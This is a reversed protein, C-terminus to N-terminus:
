GGQPSPALDGPLRLTFVTGGEPPNDFRIDGGYMWILKRVTNLGLGTGTNPKTSFFPEFIRARIAAPIGAGNDSVRLECAPTGDALQSSQASCVIRGPPLSAPQGTPSRRERLADRANLVLNRLISDLHEARCRLQCSAPLEDIVLDIGDRRLEDRLEARISVLVDRVRLPPLPELGDPSQKGIQAYDMLLRTLGLTRGLAQDVHLLVEHLLQENQNLTRVSEVVKPLAAPPLSERLALFLDKLTRSNDICLSWPEAERGGTGDRGPGSPPAAEVTAVRALMLRAGTVANRVEHAFGGAMQSETAERELRLLRAQAEHLERTREAVRRELQGYLLANDISIAVQACLTTVLEARAATFAGAVLTNELYLVGRIQGQQSLPTCLISRPRRSRVVPDGSFDVASDGGLTADNLLVREAKRSVYHVIAPVIRPTTEIPLPPSQMRLGGEGDLVAFTSLEGGGRADLAPPNAAAGTAAGQSDEEPGRGLEQPPLRLILAASEAGANEAILSMMRLLLKELSVESSLAQTARLLTPVDFAAVAQASTTSVSLQVDLGRSGGAPLLGMASVPALATWTATSAESRGSDPHSRDLEAVKALAGFRQYAARARMLYVDAADPLERGRLLQATRELALAEDRLFSEQRAQQTADALDRLAADRHGEQWAIEARVMLYRHRFNRPAHEAWRALAALNHRLRRRLRLAALGSRSPLVRAILLAEVWYFEVIDLLGLLVADADPRNQECHRLGTEAEGFILCLLARYNNHFHVQVRMQMETLTKLCKDQDFDSATLLLPGDTEGRLARAVQRILRLSEYGAAHNMVAVAALYRDCDAVLEGLPCGSLLSWRALTNVAYVAYTLNGSEEGRRWADHLLQDASRLPHTFHNAIAVYVCKVQSETFADPYRDVLGLALQGLKEGEAFNGLGSGIIAALFVYAVASLAHHGHRLSLQIMRCLLVALLNPSVFYASATADSLMRLIHIQGADSLAPLELLHLLDPPGGGTKARKSALQAAARRLQRRTRLLEYLVTVASPTRAVSVGLDRLGDLFAYTSSTTDGIHRHFLGAVYYVRARESPSPASDGLLALLQRAEDFHGTLYACEAQGLHLEMTLKPHQQWANAPLREVGLRFNDHAAVFAAAGRAREAARLNLRCLILREHAHLLEHAENLHNTLAFLLRDDPLVLDSDAGSDSGSASADAQSRGPDAGAVPLQSLLSRSIQLHLVRRERDKLTSYAAQQLRDHVFRYSGAIPLLFGEAVAERLARQLGEPTALSATPGASTVAARIRVLLELTFDHGLCASLQLLLRTEPRLQSFRQVLVDVVNDAIPAAAIQDIQWSFRRTSRDFRLLGDHHLKTLYAGAFLANGHTKGWLRAALPRTQEAPLKLSDAVFENLSEESLPGISLRNVPCAVRSLESLLTHLPHAPGVETDRYAAILLLSGGDRDALLPPLLELTAADAWQVDDLFLVLPSGGQCLAKILRQFAARFRNRSEASALEPAAPQKGLILELEPLLPSLVAALNGGGRGGGPSQMVATIRTRWLKLVPESSSSIQQLALSLAALLASYPRDRTLQDFKGGVFFGLGIGEALSGQPAPQAASEGGAAAPQRYREVLIRQLESIVASKGVGAAGSVLILEPAQASTVRAVASGLVAIESQRGHLRQTLTFQEQFDQTAIPFDSIAQRPPLASNRALETLCRQLDHRLGPCSQYREEPAKALLRHVIRALVVPLEPAVSALWAPQRAIHCHLLELPDRTPFPLQGSFLRYLTAGLAYMDTRYDVVRNMRGSQEPSLYALTGELRGAAGEYPRPAPGGEAGRNAAAGDISYAQALERPMLTALNFDIVQVADPLGAAGGHGRILINNPNLDKHIVGRQHIQDLIETLAIAIALGDPLAPVGRQLRSSLSEGGFDALLLACAPSQASRGEEVLFGLVRPLGPADSADGPAADRLQCLIDHEHRLRAVASASAEGPQKLIVSQGSRSDRARVVISASSSHLAEIASFRDGLWAPLALAGATLSSRAPSHTAADDIGLM